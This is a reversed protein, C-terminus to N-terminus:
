IPKLKKREQYMDFQKCIANDWKLFEEDMRDGINFFTEEALSM